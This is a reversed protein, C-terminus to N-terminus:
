PFGPNLDIAISEGYNKAFSAFICMGSRITGSGQEHM